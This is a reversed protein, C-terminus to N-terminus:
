SFLMFLWRLAPLPNKPWLADVFRPTTLYVVDLDPAPFSQMSDFALHWRSLLRFLNAPTWYLVYQRDIAGTGTETTTGLAGGPLDSARQWQRGSWSKCKRCCDALHCYCVEDLSQLGVARNLM